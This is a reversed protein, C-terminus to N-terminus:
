VHQTLPLVTKTVTLMIITVIRFLSMPMSILHLLIENKSIQIISVATQVMNQQSNLENTM